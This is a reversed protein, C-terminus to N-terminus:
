DILVKIKRQLEEFTFPKVIYDNCGADICNQIESPEFMATAALIPIDKTEPNARLIRMAQLGDMEPMRSNMLILDPKASIAIEVGEKGNKAIMVLFGLRELQVRVVHRIDPHDEVLLIKTM